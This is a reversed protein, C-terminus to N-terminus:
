SQVAIVRWIFRDAVWLCTRGEHVGPGEATGLSYAHRHGPYQRLLISITSGPQMLAEPPPYVQLIPAAYCMRRLRSRWM